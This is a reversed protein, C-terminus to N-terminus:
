CNFTITGAIIRTIITEALPMPPVVSDSGPWTNELPFQCDSGGTGPAISLVAIAYEGSSKFITIYPPRPEDPVRTLWNHTYSMGNAVQDWFVFQSQMGEEHGVALATCLM